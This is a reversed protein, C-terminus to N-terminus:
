VPRAAAQVPPWAVDEAKNIRLRDVAEFELRVQRDDEVSVVKVVCTPAAPDGIVVEEGPYRTIVLM